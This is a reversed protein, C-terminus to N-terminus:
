KQSDKLKRQVTGIPYGTLLVLVKWFFFIIYCLVSLIIDNSSLRGSALLAYVSSYNSVSLALFALPQNVFRVFTNASFVTRVYVVGTPACVDVKESSLLCKILEEPISENVMFLSLICYDEDDFKFAEYTGDLKLPCSQPNIRANPNYNSLGLLKKLGEATRFEEYRAHMLLFNLISSTLDTAVHEFYLELLPLVRLGEGLFLDLYFFEYSRIATKQTQVLVKFFQSLEQMDAKRDSVFFTTLCAIPTTFEPDEFEIPYRFRHLFVYWPLFARKQLYIRPLFHLIDKNVEDIQESELVKATDSPTALPAEMKLIDAILTSSPVSSSYLIRDTIRVYTPDESKIRDFPQSSYTAPSISAYRVFPLDDGAETEHYRSSPSSKSSSSPPSPPRLLSKGKSKPSKKKPTIQGDPSSGSIFSFPVSLILFFLFFSSLSAM